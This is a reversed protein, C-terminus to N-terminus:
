SLFRSRAWFASRSELSVDSSCLASLERCNLCVSPLICPCISWIFRNALSVLIAFSLTTVASLGHIPGTEPLSLAQFPLPATSLHMHILRKIAKELHVEFKM